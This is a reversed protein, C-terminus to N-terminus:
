NQVEPIAWILFAHFHFHLNELKPVKRPGFNTKFAIEKDVRLYNNKNKKTFRKMEFFKTKFFKNEMTNKFHSKFITSNRKKSFFFDLFALCRLIHRLKPPLM